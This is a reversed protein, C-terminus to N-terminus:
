MCLGERGRERERDVNLRRKKEEKWLWKHSEELTRREEMPNYLNGAVSCVDIGEIRTAIPNNIHFYKLSQLLCFKEPNLTKQKLNTKKGRSVIM